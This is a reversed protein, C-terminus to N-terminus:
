HIILSIPQSWPGPGNPGNHRIRFYYMSVPDLNSVVIKGCTLYHEPMTIWSDESAPNGKCFQVQYPGGKPMHHGRLIAQGSSGNKATLHIDVGYVDATPSVKNGTAKLPFTDLLLAPNRLEYARMTIYQGGLQYNFAAQERVLELETKKTKNGARYDADLVRLKDAYSLYHDAGELWAPWNGETGFFSHKKLGTGTTIFTTIMQPITLHSTRTDLRLYDKIQDSM